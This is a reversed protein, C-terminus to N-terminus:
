GELMVAIGNDCGKGEVLTSWDRLWAALIM